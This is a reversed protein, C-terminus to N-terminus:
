WSLRLSSRALVLMTVAQTPSAAAMSFSIQQLHCIQRM